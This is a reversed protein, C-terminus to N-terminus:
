FLLLVYPSRGLRSFSDNKAKRNEQNSNYWGLGRL